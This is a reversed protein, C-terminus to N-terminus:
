LSAAPAAPFLHFAPESGATSSHLLLWLTADPTHFRSRARRNKSKQERTHPPLRSPAKPDSKSPHWPPVKHDFNAPPLLVPLTLCPLVFTSHLLLNIQQILNDNVVKRAATTGTGSDFQGRAARHLNCDIVIRIGNQHVLGIM